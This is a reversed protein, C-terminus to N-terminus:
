METDDELKPAHRFRRDDSDFKCGLEEIQNSVFKSSDEVMILYIEVLKALRQDAPAKRDYRYWGSQDLIEGCFEIVISIQRKEIVTLFRFDEPQSNRTCFITNDTTILGQCGFICYPLIIDFSM